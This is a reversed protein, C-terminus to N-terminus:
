SSAGDRPPDCVLIVHAGALSFARSSAYSEDAAKNSGSIDPVFPLVRFSLSKLGEPPQGSSTM